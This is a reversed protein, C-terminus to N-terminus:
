STEAPAISSAITKSRAAQAEDVEGVADRIGEVIRLSVASDHLRTVGYGRDAGDIWAFSLRDAGGVTVSCVRAKSAIWDFSLCGDPEPAVEAPLARILDTAREVVCTPIPAAGDRASESALVHIDSILTRKAGFLAISRELSGIVAMASRRM